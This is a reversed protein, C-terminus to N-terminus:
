STIKSAARVAASALIGTMTTASATWPRDDGYPCDSSPVRENRSFNAHSIGIAINIGITSRYFDSLKAAGQSSAPQSRLICTAEAVTSAARYRESAASRQHSADDLGVTRAGGNRSVRREWEVKGGASAERNSPWLARQPGSM